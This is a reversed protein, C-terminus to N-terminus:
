TKPFRAINFAADFQELFALAKRLNRKRAFTELKVSKEQNSNMSEKDGRLKSARILTKMM